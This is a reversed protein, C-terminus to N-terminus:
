GIWRMGGHQFADNGPLAVVFCDRWSNVRADNVQDSPLGLLRSSCGSSELVPGFLTSAV